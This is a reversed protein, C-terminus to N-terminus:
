ASRPPASRALVDECWQREDPCLESVKPYGDLFRLLRGATVVDGHLGGNRAPYGINHLADCAEFVFQGTEVILGDVNTRMNPTKGAWRLLTVMNRLVAFEPSKDNM